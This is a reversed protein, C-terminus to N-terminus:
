SRSFFIVQRNNKLNKIDYFHIWVHDFLRIVDDNVILNKIIKIEVRTYSKIKYKDSRFIVM